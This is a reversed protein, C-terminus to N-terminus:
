ILDHPVALSKPCGAFPRAAAELAASRAIEAAPTDPLPQHACRRAWALWSARTARVALSPRSCPAPRTTAPSALRRARAVRSCRGAQTRRRRRRSPAAAAPPGCHRVVALGATRQTVGGLANRAAGQGHRLRQRLGPRLGRWGRGNRRALLPPTLSSRLRLAKMRSQSSRCAAQGSGLRRGRAGRARRRALLAARCATWRGFGRRAAPRLCLWCASRKATAAVGLRGASLLWVAPAAWSGGEVRRRGGAPAGTRRPALRSGLTWQGAIAWIAPQAARLGSGPWSRGRACAPRQM